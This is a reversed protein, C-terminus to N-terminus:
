INGHLKFTVQVSNRIGTTYDSDVYMEKDVSMRNRGDIISITRYNMYGGIGSIKIALVDESMTDMIREEMSSVSVVEQSIQDIIDKVIGSEISARLDYDQYISKLVFLEVIISQHAKIRIEEKDDAMVTIDSISNKPSFYIKTRELATENLENLTTNSWGVTLNSIYEVYARTSGNDAFRFRADFLTIDMWWQTYRNSEYEMENDLNVIIDGKRHLIIPEGTSEDLVNEGVEHLIILENKGNVITVEPLGTVIDIKFRSIDRPGYTLYVDELYRKPSREGIVMRAGSWLHKLRTGLTINIAEHYIGVFEGSLLHSGVIMDLSGRAVDENAGLRASWILEFSTDLGILIPLKSGNKMEFGSVEISEDIINWNTEIFFEVILHGDNNRGLIVGNMYGHVSGDKIMLQVSVDENPIEKFASSSDSVLTIKYGNKKYEVKRNPGTMIILGTNDNSNIYSTHKVVPLTLLYANSHFRNDSLDLVYHFPTWLYNSNNLRNVLSEKDMSSLRNVESSPVITLGNGDVTYLLDPSMTLRDVNDYVGDLGSLRDFSSRLTLMGSDISLNNVTSDIPYRRSAIYTRRTIDDIAIASDFGLRNIATDIQGETIPLKIDGINNNIVMDRRALFSPANRGGTTYTNNRIDFTDLISMPSTYIGGLDSDVDIFEVTFQEPNMESIDVDYSGNTTYVDIRLERGNLNGLLYIYPLEYILEDDIVNLLLTPKTVDFTQESFTTKIENWQGQNTKLYARVAYFKDNFKIRKKLTTGSTITTYYSTQLMQKVPIDLILIDMVGDEDNIGNIQIVEWDVKNTSISQLPSPSSLDWIVDMSGNRKVLFDIPYQMTFPIGSAIFKTHKPITLKRISTNGVPISRSIIESKSLLLKFTSEGPISFMDLYDKDSMHSYLDTEDLAMFPYSKRDLVEDNRVSATALMVSMELLKMAPTGPDSIELNNGLSKEFLDLVISQVRTPEYRVEKLREIFKNKEEM